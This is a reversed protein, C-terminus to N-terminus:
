FLLLHKQTGILIYKSTAALYTLTSTSVTTGKANHYMQLNCVFGYAAQFKTTLDSFIGCKILHLTVGLYFTDEFFIYKDLHLNVGLVLLYIVILKM